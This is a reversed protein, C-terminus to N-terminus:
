FIWCQYPKLWANLFNFIVWSGNSSNHSKSWRFKNILDIGGVSIPGALYFDLVNKLDVTTYRLNWKFVYYIYINMTSFDGNKNVLSKLIWCRLRCCPSRSLLPYCFIEAQVACKEKVNRQRWNVAEVYFHSIELFKREGESSPYPELSNLELIWSLESVKSM